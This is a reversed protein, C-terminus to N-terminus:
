NQISELEKEDWKPEIKIMKLAYVDQTKRRRVMYVRGFAGKGLFRLVEFDDVRIEEVREEGVGLDLLSRHMKLEPEEGPASTSSRRERISIVTECLPNPSLSIKPLSSLHPDPIEVTSGSKRAFISKKPKPPKLSDPLTHTSVQYLPYGEVSCSSKWNEKHGQVYRKELYM